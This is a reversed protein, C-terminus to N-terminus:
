DIQDPRWAVLRQWNAQGLVVGAAVFAMAIWFTSTIPEGLCLKAWSMSSIPVLNNFLLVRSAPWRRLAQNWIAFAVVGGGVICYAQVFLVDARWALGSSAVEVLGFPLVLLGARWMTHASTEVGSLDAALMSPAVLVKPM